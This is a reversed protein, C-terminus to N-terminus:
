DFFALAFTLKLISVFGYLPLVLNKFPLAVFTSPTPDGLSCSSAGLPAHPKNTYIECPNLEGIM